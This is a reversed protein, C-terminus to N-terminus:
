ARNGGFTSGFPTGREFRTLAFRGIDAYEIPFGLIEGAIMEGIAPGLKFCHGSGGTGRYLGEIGDVSGLLPHWDPTVSYLGVRSGVVNMGEFRPVRRVVRDRVDSEFSADVQEDYDDPDVYEYEKPFGRGVLMLSEGQESLPRFYARDAQASVALPVPPTDGTDYIVDQERTVVIPLDIGLPAALAKSWAGAALVVRDCAIATGNAVVGAVSGNRLEIREVSAGEVASAGERVAAAVYSRTTAVPDAFGSDEEYVVSAIGETNIGPILVRLDDLGLEVSASGERTQMERNQAATETSEEDLLFVWGTRHYVPESGLQEPLRMLAERSRVAMRVTEPNSYHMRVIAASKGTSEQAYRRAELLVTRDGRRALQWLTAAGVIGGGIVVTSIGNLSRLDTV